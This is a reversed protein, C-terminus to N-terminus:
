LLISRESSLPFVVDTSEPKGGGGDSVVARSAGTSWSDGPLLVKKDTKRRSALISRLGARGTNQNTHEVEAERRVNEDFGIPLVCENSCLIKMDDTVKMSCIDATASAAAM